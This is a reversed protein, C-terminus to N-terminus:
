KKKKKKKKKAFPCDKCDKECCKDKKSLYAFNRISWINNLSGCDIDIM